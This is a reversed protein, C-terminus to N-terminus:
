MRRPHYYVLRVMNKRMGKWGKGEDVPRIEFRAALMAVVSTIEATAFHRGPCLTIGGGFGRFTGPRIANTGSKKSSKVFRDPQYETARDGWLNENAHVIPFPMQVTSDKKLLWRDALVFDERVRRISSGTSRTRLTEQFVSSLLPCEEKMRSINITRVKSSGKEMSTEEVIVTSIEDRLDNLLRSDSFVDLLMWFTCRVTNILM